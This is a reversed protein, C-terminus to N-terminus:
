PDAGLSRRLNIKAARVRSKVTGIPVELMLAAEAFSYGADVVLLIAQRQPDSLADLSQRVQARDLGDQVTESVQDWSM